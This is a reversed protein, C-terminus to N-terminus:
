PMLLVPATLGLRTNYRDHAQLCPMLIARSSLTDNVQQQLNLRDLVCLFWMTTDENQWISLQAHILPASMLLDAVLKLSAPM